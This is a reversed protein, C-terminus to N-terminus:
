ASGHAHHHTDLDIIREGLRAVRGGFTELLVADTCTAAAPGFAVVRRNLALVLDFDTASRELDHTAVLVTRGAERWDVVLRRIAEETPRDVGTFPEDLLMLDADQAAAQAVLARQRQGGSLESLRRDGLRELGLARMAGDVLAHDRRGLRGLWGVEGWRGMRVADRVTIPFSPELALHQPLYATRSAAAISGGAPAVLGIAAAFLTSKGSGNPGLVAVTAGAPVDLTVADLATDGGYRVTLERASLAPGPTM